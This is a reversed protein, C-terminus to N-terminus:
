SNKECWELAKRTVEDEDSGAIHLLLRRPAKEYIFAAFTCTEPTRWAHLEIVHHGHNISRQFSSSDRMWAHYVYLSREPNSSSTFSPRTSSGINLKVTWFTRLNSLAQLVSAKVGM